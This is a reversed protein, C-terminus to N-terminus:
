ECTLTQVRRQPFLEAAPLGGAFARCDGPHAGAHTGAEGARTDGSPIVREACGAAEGSQRGDLGEGGSSGSSEGGPRTALTEPDGQHRTVAGAAALAILPELNPYTIRDITGLSSFGAKESRRAWETLQEGTTDPVANPLGIAIEM